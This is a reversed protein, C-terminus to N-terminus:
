QKDTLVAQDKGSRNVIFFVVILIFIALSGWTVVCSFDTM